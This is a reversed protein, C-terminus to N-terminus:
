FIIMITPQQSNDITLARRVRGEEQSIIKLVNNEYVDGDFYTTQTSQSCLVKLHSAYATQVAYVTYRSGDKIWCQFSSDMRNMRSVDGAPVFNAPSVIGM